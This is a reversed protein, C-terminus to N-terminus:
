YSSFLIIIVYLNWEINFESVLISNVRAMIIINRGPIITFSLYLTSLMNITNVLSRFFPTLAHFVILPRVFGVLFWGNVWYMRKMNNMRVGWLFIIQRAIQRANNKLEHTM